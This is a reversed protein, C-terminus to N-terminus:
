GLNREIKDLEKLIVALRIKAKAFEDVFDFSDDRRAKIEKKFQGKAKEYIKEIRKRKEERWESSNYERGCEIVVFSTKSGLSGRPSNFLQTESDVKSKLLSRIADSLCESQAKLFEVTIGAMLFETENILSRISFIAREIVAECDDDSDCDCLVFPNRDEEKVSLEDIQIRLDHIEEKLNNCTNVLIVHSERPSFPEGKKRRLDNASLSLRALPHQSKTEAM